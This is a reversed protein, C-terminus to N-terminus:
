RKQNGSQQSDASGQGGPSLFTSLMSTEPRPSLRFFGFVVIENGNFLFSAKIVRETAGRDYSRPELRSAIASTTAQTLARVCCPEMPVRCEDLSSKENGGPVM